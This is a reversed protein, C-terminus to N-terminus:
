WFPYNSQKNWGDTGKTCFHQGFQIPSMNVCIVLIWIWKKKLIKCSEWFYIFKVTNIRTLLKKWVRCNNKIISFLNVVCILYVLCHMKNKTELTFCPIYLVYHHLYPMNYLSTHIFLRKISALTWFRVGKIWLHVHSAVLIDEDKKGHLGSITLMRIIEKWYSIAKNLVIPWGRDLSLFSQINRQNIFIDTEHGFWRSAVRLVCQMHWVFTLM